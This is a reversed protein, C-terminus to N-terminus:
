GAARRHEFYGKFEDRGDAVGTYSSMTWGVPQGTLSRTVPDFVGADSYSLAAVLLPLVGALPKLAVTGDMIQFVAVKEAFSLGGFPSLFAGGGAPNVAQALDNLIAAVMASFHPLYPASLDLSAILVGTVGADVGGPEATSVGQAVSYADPGPVVFALLGNLTDHVLDVSAAEAAQILNDLKPSGRVMVAAATLLGSHLFARRTVSKGEFSAFLNRGTTSSNM